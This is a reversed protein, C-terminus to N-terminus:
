IKKNKKIENLIKDNLKVRSGDGIILDYPIKKENFYRLFRLTFNQRELIFLCITLKTQM